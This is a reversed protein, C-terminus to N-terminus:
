TSQHLAIQFLLAQVVKEANWQMKYGMQIFPNAFGSWMPVHLFACSREYEYACATITKTRM